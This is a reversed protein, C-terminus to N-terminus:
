VFIQSQESSVSSILLFLQAFLLKLRIKMPVSTYQYNEVERAKSREEPRHVRPVSFRHGGEGFRIMMLEAVRDWEGQPRGGNHDAVTLLIDSRKQDFDLSHGDEQHFDERMSLFSTPTLM